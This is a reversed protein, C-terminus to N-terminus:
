PAHEAGSAPGKGGGKGLLPQAEPQPASSQAGGMTTTRQPDGKGMGGPAGKGMPMGKAGKGMPAAAAKAKGKGKGKTSVRPPPVNGWRRKTKRSLAYACCGLPACCLLVVLLTVVMFGAAKSNEAQTLCGVGMKLCMFETVTAGINVIAANTAETTDEGRSHVKQYGFCETVREPMSFCYDEHVCTSQCGTNAFGCGKSGFILHNQCSKTWEKCHGACLPEGLGECESDFVMGEDTYTPHGYGAAHGLEHTVLTGFWDSGIQEDWLKCDVFMTPGGVEAAASAVNESYSLTVGLNFAQAMQDHEEQWLTTCGASLMASGLTLEDRLLDFFDTFLPMKGQDCQFKDDTMAAVRTGRCQYGSSGCKHHAPRCDTDCCDGGDYNCEKTNYTGGDCHGDGLMEPNSVKCGNPENTLSKPPSDSGHTPNDERTELLPTIVL